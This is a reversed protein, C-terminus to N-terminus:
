QRRPPAKSFRWISGGRLLVGRITASQGAELTATLRDLERGRLSLLDGESGLMAIARALIRRQIEDPAGPRYLIQGDQVEVSRAWEQDTAWDLATDAEGLHAASSALSASDFNPTNMLLNRVRVREFQEDANSTDNAPEVAAEECVQELEERRWGLLPRLLPIDSGPTTGSGRMGALGRVGSGRALRMLFTEAQDDAHHGTVIADLGREHAWDSLLRYREIRAREQIASDPKEAWNATLTFHPVGLKACIDHVMRTEAAAEPRLGHDVTAAEIQNSPTAAALLLLALSDPGGSVAIGVRKGPAILADLDRTFRDILHQAPVM